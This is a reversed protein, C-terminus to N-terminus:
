RTSRRWAQSHGQCRSDGPRGLEEGSPPRHPEGAKDRTGQGSGSTRYASLWPGPSSGKRYPFWGLEFYKSLKLVTRCSDFCRTPM